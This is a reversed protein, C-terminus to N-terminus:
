GAFQEEVGLKMEVQAHDSERWNQAINSQISPLCINEYEERLSQPEFDSVVKSVCKFVQSRGKFFSRIDRSAGDSECPDSVFNSAGINLVVISFPQKGISNMLLKTAVLVVIEVRNETSISTSLVELPM